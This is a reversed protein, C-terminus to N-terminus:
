DQEDTEIKMGNEVIVQCSRRHEVGNIRLRCEFCVGMGCLPARPAGSVSRRFFSAGSVFVASAVTSGSLVTLTEDNISLIVSEM